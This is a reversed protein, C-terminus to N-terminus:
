TAAAKIANLKKMGADSELKIKAVPEHRKADFSTKNILVGEAFHPSKVRMTPVNSRKM